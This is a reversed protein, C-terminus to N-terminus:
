AVQSETSRESQGNLRSLIARYYAASKCVRIGHVRHILNRGDKTLYVPVNRVLAGYQRFESSKESESESKAKKTYDMGFVARYLNIPLEIRLNQGLHILSEGDKSVFVRVDTM